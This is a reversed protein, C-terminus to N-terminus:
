APPSQDWRLSIGLRAAQLQLTHLEAVLTLVREETAHWESMFERTEAGPSGAGGSVGEYTIPEEEVLTGVSGGGAPEAGGRQSRFRM